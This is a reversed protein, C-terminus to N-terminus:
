AMSLLRQVIACGDAESAAWVSAEAIGPPGAAPVCGSDSHTHSPLPSDHSPLPSDSSISKLIATHTEAGLALEFDDFDFGPAVTCGVLAWQSGEPLLAGFWTDPRVFHQPTCSLAKLKEKTESGGEQFKCFSTGL